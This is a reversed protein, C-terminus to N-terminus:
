LEEPAGATEDPLVPLSDAEGNQEEIPIVMLIDLIRFGDQSLYLVEVPLGEKFLPNKLGKKEEFNVIYLNLDSGLVYLIKNTLFVICGGVNWQKPKLM